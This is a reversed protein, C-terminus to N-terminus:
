RRTSLSEYLEYEEKLYDYLFDPREDKDSPSSPSVNLRPAELKEGVKHSLYDLFQVYDDYRFVTVKGIQGNKNKLFNIQRGVKAFAAPQPKVYEQAFELFSINATSKTKGRPTRALNERTRYRYWSNLWDIPERFLCITEIDGALRAHKSQVKELFPKFFREYTKLNVHKISPDSGTTIDGYHRLIAETSTSACKPM